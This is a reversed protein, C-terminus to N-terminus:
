RIERREDQGGTNKNCNPAKECPSERNIEFTDKSMKSISELSPYETCATHSLVEARVIISEKVGAVGIKSSTHTGGEM